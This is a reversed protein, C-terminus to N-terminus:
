FYKAYYTKYQYDKLILKRFLNKLRLFHSKYYFAKEEINMDVVEFGLSELQGPIVLNLGLNKPTGLIIFKRNNYEM